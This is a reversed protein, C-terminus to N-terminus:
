SKVRTLSTSFRINSLNGRVDILGTSWSSFFSYRIEGLRLLYGNWPKNLPNLRIGSLFGLGSFLNRPFEPLSTIMANLIRVQNPIWDYGLGKFPSGSFNFILKVPNLVPQPHFGTNWPRPVFASPKFLLAGFPRKTLEAQNPLVATSRDPKKLLVLLM